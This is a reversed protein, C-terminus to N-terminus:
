KQYYYYETRGYIDCSNYGGFSLEKDGNLHRMDYTSDTRLQDNNQGSVQFSVGETNYDMSDPSFIYWAHPEYALEVYVGETVSYATQTILYVDGSETPFAGSRMGVTLSYARPQVAEVTQAGPINVAMLALAAAATFAATRNRRESRKNKVSKVENSM